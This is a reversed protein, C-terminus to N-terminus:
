IRDEYRNEQILPFKISNDDVNYRILAMVIELDNGASDNIWNYTVLAKRAELLFKRSPSPM